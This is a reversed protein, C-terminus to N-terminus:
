ELGIESRRVFLALDEPEGEHPDSGLLDSTGKTNFMTIGNRVCKDVIEKPVTGPPCSGMARIHAEEAPTFMYPRCSSPLKRGETKTREFAEQSRKVETQRGHIREEVSRAPFAETLLQPAIYSNGYDGETEESHPDRMWCDSGDSFIVYYKYEVGYSTTCGLFNMGLETQYFDDRGDNRLYLKIGLDWDLSTFLYVAEIDKNKFEEPLPLCRKDAPVTFLVVVSAAARPQYGKATSNACWPSNMGYSGGIAKCSERLPKEFSEQTGPKAYVFRM